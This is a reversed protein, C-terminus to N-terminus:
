KLPMRILGEVPLSAPAFSGGLALGGPVPTYMEIAIQSIALRQGESAKEGPTVSAIVLVPRKPDKILSLPKRDPKLDPFFRKMATLHMQSYYWDEVAKKDKFWAMIVLQRGNKAAVPEVGLCGPSARLGGVLDPFDAVSQPRSAPDQARASTVSAGVFLGLMGAVPVALLSRNM